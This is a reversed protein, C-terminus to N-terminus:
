RLHWSQPFILRPPPSLSNPCSWHDYVCVGWFITISLLSLVVSPRKCLPFATFWLEHRQEFDWSVVTSVSYVVVALTELVSRMICKAKNRASAALSVQVSTAFNFSKLSM